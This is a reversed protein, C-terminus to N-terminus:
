YKEIRRGSEARSTQDTEICSAFQHNKNYIIAVGGGKRGQRNKVVIEYETRDRVDRCLAEHKDVLWTETVCAVDVELEDLTSILSELKPM